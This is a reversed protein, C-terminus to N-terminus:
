RSPTAAPLELVSRARRCFLIGSPRVRRETRITLGRADLFVIDLDFRMGFTHVSRCRPFYLAIGPPPERLLALGLARSRPSSAELFDIGACSAVV